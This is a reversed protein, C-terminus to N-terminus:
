RDGFYEGYRIEDVIGALEMATGALLIKEWDRPCLIQCERFGERCITTWMWKQGYDFYVDRVVYRANNPSNFELMKAVLQLKKYEQTGKKITAPQM